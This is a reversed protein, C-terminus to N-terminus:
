EYEVELYQVENGKSILESQSHVDLKLYIKSLHAQVTKLSIGLNEAIKKHRLGKLAEKLVDRERNTLENM